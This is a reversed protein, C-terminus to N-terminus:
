QRKTEGMLVRLALEAAQLAKLAASALNDYCAAVGVFTRRAEALLSSVTSPTATTHPFTAAHRALNEPTLGIFLSPRQDIDVLEQM